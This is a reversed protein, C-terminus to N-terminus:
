RKAYKEKTDVEINKNYVDKTISQIKYKITLEEFSSDYLDSSSSSFTVSIDKSSNKTYGGSFTVDWSGVPTDGRSFSVSGKFGEFSYNSDNKVTFYVTTKYESYKYEDSVKTAVLTIDEGPNFNFDAKPIFVISFIIGALSLFGVLSYYAKTKADVLEGNKRKKVLLVAVAISLAAYGAFLLYITNGLEIFSLQASCTGIISIFILTFGCPIFTFILLFFWLFQNKVAEKAELKEQEKKAILEKQKREEVRRKANKELAELQGAKFRDAIRRLIRFENDEYFPENVKELEELHSVKYRMLLTYEYPITSDPERRMMEDIYRSLEDYRETILAIDM